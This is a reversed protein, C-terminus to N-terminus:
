RKKESPKVLSIILLVLGVVLVAALLINLDLHNSVFGEKVLELVFLLVFFMVGWVLLEELVKKFM